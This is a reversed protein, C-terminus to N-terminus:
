LAIQDFIRETDKTPLLSWAHTMREGCVYHLDIGHEVARSWLAKADDHLLDATGSFMMIPPLNRFDGLGPSIRFDSLPSNGAWHRAAWILGPRSLLPDVAELAAQGPNDVTANLWPSLLILRDPLKRGEDRWQQALGLTLGAGASDGIITISRQGVGKRVDDYLESLMRYAARWDNEPALPYAPVVVRCRLRKALGEVIRWQEPMLNAVYAGGHIYIFTRTAPEEIPDVTYVRSGLLVREDVRFHRRLRAPPPADGKLRGKEIVRAYRVPDSMQRKIGLVPLIILRVMKSAFSETKWVTKVPKNWM